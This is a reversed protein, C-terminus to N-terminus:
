ASASSVADSESVSSSVRGSSSYQAMRLPVVPVKMDLFVTEDAVAAASRQDADVPADVKQAQRSEVAVSDEGAEEIRM